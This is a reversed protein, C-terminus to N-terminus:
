INKFLHMIGRLHAASSCSENFQWKKRDEQKMGAKPESLFAFVHFFNIQNSSNRFLLWIESFFFKFKIDHDSKWQLSNFVFLNKMDKSIFIYKVANNLIM